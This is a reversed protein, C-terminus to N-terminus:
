RIIQITKNILTQKFRERQASYVLIKTGTIECANGNTTATLGEVLCHGGRLEKLVEQHEHRKKSQNQEWQHKNKLAENKKKSEEREIAHRITDQIYESSYPKLKIIEDNLRKVEDYVYAYKKKHKNLAELRDIGLIIWSLPYSFDYDELEETREFVKRYQTKIENLRKVAQEYRPALLKHQRQYEDKIPKPDVYTSQWFTEQNIRQLNEIASIFRRYDKESIERFSMNRFDGICYQIKITYM